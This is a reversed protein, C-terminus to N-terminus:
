VGYNEPIVGSVPDANAQKIFEYFDSWGEQHTKFTNGSPGTLTVDCEVYKVTGHTEEVEYVDFYCHDSVQQSRNITHTGDQPSEVYIYYGTQTHQITWRGEGSPTFLYKGAYNDLATTKLGSNNLEGVYCKGGASMMHATQLKFTGAADTAELGFIGVGVPEHQMFIGHYTQGTEPLSYMMFFAGEHDEHPTGIHSHQIMIRKGETLEDLTTLKKMKTVEAPFPYYGKEAGRQAVADADSAQAQAGLSVFLAVLFFLLKRM